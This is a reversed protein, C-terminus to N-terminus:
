CPASAKGCCRTSTLWCCESEACNSREKGAARSCEHSEGTEDLPICVQVITGAGPSSEIHLQGGLLEIRENMGALGDVRGAIAEALVLREGLARNTAQTVVQSALVAAGVLALLVGVLSAAFFRGALSGHRGPVRRFVRRAWGKM